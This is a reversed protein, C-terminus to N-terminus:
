EKCPVLKKEEFFWFSYNTVKLGEYSVSCRDIIAKRPCNPDRCQMSGRNNVKSLHVLENKCIHCIM